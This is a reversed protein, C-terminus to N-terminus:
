EIMFAVHAPAESPSAFVAVRHRGPEIALPHLDNGVVSGVAIGQAGVTIEGRWIVVLNAPEDAIWVDVTVPVVAGEVVDSRTGVAIGGTTSVVTEAGDSFAPVGDSKSPDVLLVQAYYPVVEVSLVKPM